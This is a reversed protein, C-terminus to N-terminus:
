AVLEKDNLERHRLGHCIQCLWMVDLPKSYDDHHAHLRKPLGCRSCKTPKVLDGRRLAKRVAEHTKAQTRDLKRQRNYIARAEKDRSRMWQILYERNNEGWTRRRERDQLKKAPSLRRIRGRDRGCPKCEARRSGPTKGTSFESLPRPTACRSCVKVAEPTDTM